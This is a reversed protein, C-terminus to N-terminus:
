RKNWGLFGHRTGRDRHARFWLEAQNIIEANPLVCLATLDAVSQQRLVARLEAPFIARVEFSVSTATELEQQINKWCPRHFIHLASLPRLTVADLAPAERWRQKVGKNSVGVYRFGCDSSQVIYLCSGKRLWIAENICQYIGAKWPGRRSDSDEVDRLWHQEPSVLGTVRLFVSAADFVANLVHHPM